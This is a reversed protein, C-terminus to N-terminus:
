IDLILHSTSKCNNCFQPGLKYQGGFAKKEEETFQSGVKIIVSCNSCLLAGRGNNMKFIAKEQKM